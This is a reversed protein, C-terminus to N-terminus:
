ISLNMEFVIQTDHKLTKSSNLKKNAMQLEKVVPYGGM